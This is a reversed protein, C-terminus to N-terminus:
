RMRLQWKTRGKRESAVLAQLRGMERQRREHQLLILSASSSVPVQNIFSNMPPPIGQDDLRQPQPPPLRASLQNM